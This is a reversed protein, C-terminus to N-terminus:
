SSKKQFKEPIVSQSQPQPEGRGRELLKDRLESIRADLSAQEEM